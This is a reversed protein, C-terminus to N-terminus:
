LLPVYCVNLYPNIVCTLFLVYLLDLCFDNCLLFALNLYLALAEHHEQIVCVVRTSLEQTGKHTINHGSDSVVHM